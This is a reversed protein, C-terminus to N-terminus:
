SYNSSSHVGILKTKKKRKETKKDAKKGKDAKQKCAKKRKEAKTQEDAKDAKKKGNQHKRKSKRKELCSIVLNVVKSRLIYMYTHITISAQKSGGAFAAPCREAASPTPSRTPSKMCTPSM